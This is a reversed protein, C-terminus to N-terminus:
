RILRRYTSPDAYLLQLDGRSVVRGTIEVPEAVLGLVERNVSDGGASVLLYYTARGAADRVLFVPPIGGSICRTACSRHTKSDGPKMVGLFCKSDVIEGTLTRQGLAVDPADAQVATAEAEAGDLRTVSGAVVEIMTRQDRYVLSGRLRVERGDLGEVLSSAGHKGVAVLLYHSSPTVDGNPGPRPVRLMPYPKEIVFGSFERIVGFEFTSAAFRRQANVLLLALVAAALFVLVVTRRTRAAIGGPARDVYGVYFEDRM